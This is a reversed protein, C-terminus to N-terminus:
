YRFLLIEIFFRCFSSKVEYKVPRFIKIKRKSCFAAGRTYDSLAGGASFSFSSLYTALALAVGAPPKQMDTAIGGGGSNFWPPLARLLESTNM